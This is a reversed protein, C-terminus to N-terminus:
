MLFTSLLQAHQSNLLSKLLDLCEVDLAGALCLYTLHEDISAATIDVSQNQTSLRQSNMLASSSVSPMVSPSQLSWIGWMLLRTMYRSTGDASRTSGPAKMRDLM